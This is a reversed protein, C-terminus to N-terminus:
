FFGQGWGDAFLFCAILIHGGFIGVYFSIQDEEWRICSRWVIHSMKEGEYKERSGECKLRIQQCV